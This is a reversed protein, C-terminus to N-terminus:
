NSKNKLLDEKHEKADIIEFVKTTATFGKVLRVDSAKFFQKILIMVEKNAKGKHPASKVYAVFKKSDKDWLLETKKANPKIYIEFLVTSGM